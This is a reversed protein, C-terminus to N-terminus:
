YNIAERVTWLKIGNAMFSTTGGFMGPYDIVTVTLGGKLFFCRGTVIFAKISGDDKSISAKIILDLYEESLCAIYGEKTTSKTIDAIRASHSNAKPEIDKECLAIGKDIINSGVRMDPHQPDRKWIEDGDRWGYEKIRSRAAGNLAYTEGSVTLTVLRLNGLRKCGLEGTAVTFPWDADYAPESRKTPAPKEVAVGTGPPTIEVLVVGDKESLIRYPWTPPTPSTVEKKFWPHMWKYMKATQGFTPVTCLLAVIAFLVARM